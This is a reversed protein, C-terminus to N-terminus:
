PHLFVQDVWGRKDIKDIKDILDVVPSFPNMKWIELVGCGHGRVHRTAVELVGKNCRSSPFKAGETRAINRTEWADNAGSDPSKESPIGAECAEDCTRNYEKCRGRQMVCRRCECGAGSPLLEGAIDAGNTPQAAQSRLRLQLQLQM